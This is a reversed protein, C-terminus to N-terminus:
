EQLSTNLLKKIGREGMIFLDEMLDINYPGLLKKNTKSQFKCDWFVLKM